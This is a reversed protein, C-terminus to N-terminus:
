LRAQCSRLYRLAERQGVFEKSGRYDPDHFGEVCLDGGYGGELLIRLIETWDCAGRGPFRHECYHMGFWIGDRRIADLDVSADKGHVHVIRPLWRRLQPLPDILQELQHSPEWTLGLAPSPVADFLLEWARPCFAINCTPQYWHGYMHANELGIRVGADEARRALDGFVRRFDGVTDAVSKGPLAGAFTSVVKAGLLRAQEICRILEARSDESALPNGYLGIASVRVGSGGIIDKAEEAVAALDLDGLTDSCYLEVTEFGASIAQRLEEQWADRRICTGIAMSM